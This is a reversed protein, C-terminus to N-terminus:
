RVRRMIEVGSGNMLTQLEHFRQEAHPAVLVDLRPQWRGGPLTTGWSDVRDRVATALRLTANYVSGNEFPFSQIVENNQVLEYRDHHCVMAIPRVVQTGNMGAMSRPLAWDKGERRVMTPAPQQQDMQMNMSQPPAGAPPQAQSAAPASSMSVSAAASQGGSPQKMGSAMEGNVQSSAGRQDADTNSQFPESQDSLDSGDMAEQGAAMLNANASDGTGSQGASPMRSSLPKDKQALYENLADSHTEAAGFREHTSGPVPEAMGGATLPPGNDRLPAFGNSRAQRDLSRASLVPLPKSPRTEEAGSGLGNRSGSDRGTQRGIENGQTSGSFMPGSGSAYSGDPKAHYDQGGSLPNSRPGGVSGAVDGGSGGSGAGGRGGIYRYANRNVAEHIALEIKPKLTSDAKPFALDVEGPVLEYGYQDDWDGMAARAVVFTEIGDPRVILLPYPPASDGYHQVAHRRVVRLAADLPNATPSGSEVGAILQTHTIRTDEPWITIGNATCEVYIPRRASGNPGRHPVIVVRPKDGSKVSELEAIERRLTEMEERMMVIAQEDVQMADEPSVAADVEDSLLKLRSRLKQTASQIQTLEDRRREVKETQKERHAVLETVRFEEEELLSTAMSATMASPQADAKASVASEVSPNSPDDTTPVAVSDDEALAVQPVSTDRAKEAVLALLLILTGLTCVLVALFPFLSPSLSARRRSM